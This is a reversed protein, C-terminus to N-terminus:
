KESADRENLNFTEPITEMRYFSIVTEEKLDTLDDLSCSKEVGFVEQFKTCLYKAVEGVLRM